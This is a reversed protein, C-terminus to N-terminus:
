CKSWKTMPSCSRRRATRRMSVALDSPMSECVGLSHGRSAQSEDCTTLSLPPPAGKVRVKEFCYVRARARMCKM